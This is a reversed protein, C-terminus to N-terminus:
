GGRNGRSSRSATVRSNMQGWTEREPKSRQHHRSVLSFFTEDPLWSLLQYEPFLKDTEPM